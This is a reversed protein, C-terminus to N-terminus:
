FTLGSTLVALDNEFFPESSENLYDYSYSMTVWRGKKFISIIVTRVDFLSLYKWEFSTKFAVKKDNLTIRENSILKVQSGVSKFAEKILPGAKKLSVGEPINNISIAIRGGEPTTMAMIENESLLKSKTSGEPLKLKLSPIEKRIFLKKQTFGERRSHWIFNREKTSSSILFNFKETVNKEEKIFTNSIVAPLIYEDLLAKPIFNESDELHSTFVVVMNRDPIVYIFQGMFGVAMYYNEIPDSKFGFNWKFRWAKEINFYAPGSWWQYGYNKYLDSDLYKKTSSEVWNKSVIQKGEWIGKNLYLLGFKAMDIPRMRMGGWGIHIGRPDLEWRIDSESIGLPDFLYKQAFEQPKMKTSKFLIASILYSVGNSYEFKTGPDREMPLNLLYKVWDDHSKMKRLGVWKHHWSDETKLGSAMMLLHELTIDKINEDMNPSLKDPFFGIVKTKVSKIFGKDIAIGVLASLFSKSVSHIIHKKGKKFPYKYYDTVLFGNRIISISDIKYDKDKILEMMEILKKSDVGQKEPTSQKWVETPWYSPRDIGKKLLPAKIQCSLLFLLFFTKLKFM